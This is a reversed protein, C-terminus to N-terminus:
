RFHVSVCFIPLYQYTNLIFDISLAFILSLTPKECFRLSICRISPYQVQCRDGNEYSDVQLGWERPQPIVPANPNSKQDFEKGKRNKSINKFKSSDDKAKENKTDVVKKTLKIMGNLDKKSAILHEDGPRNVLGEKVRKLRSQLDILKESLEDTSSM